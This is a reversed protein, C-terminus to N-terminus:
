PWYVLVDVGCGGRESAKSTSEAKILEGNVYISAIV